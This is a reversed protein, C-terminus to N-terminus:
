ASVGAAAACSEVATSFEPDSRPVQEPPFPPLTGDFSPDPNPFDEVGSSRMCQAFRTFQAEIMALLGPSSDLQLFGVLPGVCDTLASRFGPDPASEGILGSLDPAGDDGVTVTVEYGADALCDSLMAVAEAADAPPAKTTTPPLTTEVVPSPPAATCGALVLLACGLLRSM